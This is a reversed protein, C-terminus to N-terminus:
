IEAKLLELERLQDHVWGGFARSLKQRRWHGLALLRPDPGRNLAQAILSM